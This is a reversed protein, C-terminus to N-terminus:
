KKVSCGCNGTIKTKTVKTKVNKKHCIPCEKSVFECEDNTKAESPSDKDDPKLLDGQKLGLASPCSSSNDFKVAQGMEQFGGQHNGLEFQIRSQEIHHASEPGFVRPDIEYDFVAQEIMHKGSLKNLKQAAQLPNKINPAEAILEKVIADVKPQLMEERQQCKTAYELYDQRPKAEGFFLGGACEDYLKVLDIAGNPILSNHILLPTNIVQAATKGNLDTGLELAMKQITTEDHRYYGPKEVGAVFASETTLRGDKTTTVQIACSMTDTFFGCEDMQQDTLNDAARSFVVFSYEGLKGTNFLHNIRFANLAEAETREIMLDSGLKLSNSQISEMTQGYQQIKGTADLHLNVRTVHGAKITREVVDTQVNTEVMKYATPDGEAALLIADYLSRIPQIDLFTEYSNVEIQSSAVCAGIFEAAKLRIGVDDDMEPVPIVLPESQYQPAQTYIYKEATPAVM